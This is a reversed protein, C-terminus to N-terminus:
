RGAKLQPMLNEIAWVEVKRQGADFAIRSGDPHVRPNALRPMALGIQEPTGGSVAIKLLEVKAESRPSEPSTSTGFILHRGDPSWALPTMADFPQNQGSRFIERPEGGAASVVSLVPIENEDAVVFADTTFAIWRGDRSLAMNGVNGPHVVREQGTALELAVIASVNDSRREFYVTKGDPSWEPHRLVGRADAAAIQTVDGTKADISFVGQWSKQPKARGTVLFSSGDPSWRIGRNMIQIMRSSVPVEKMDGTEPNSIVLTYSGQRESVWALRRGDRSWDSGENSGVYRETVKTPSAAVRGTKPDITTVYVDTLVDMVGYFFSGSRTFGMPWIPGSPKGLASKVLEPPGDPKGDRVAIAWIGWSGTRDSTFLIHRGDPSWGMPVDSAPHEILPIDQGGGVSRLFIDRKKSEPGQSRSHLIHRGDPSLATKGPQEPDQTTLLVRVAANKVSILALENAGTEKALWALVHQGDPSWDVPRLWPTDKQNILVRADSGDLAIVRLEYFNGAGFWAYAVQKGDPSFVSFEAFYPTSWSGKGTLRRDRGTDFDHLALDGTSWDTFTLHRGDPSPSGLVDRANAWVERVVVGPRAVPHGLETLRTRAQEVLERQKPFNTLVRQLAAAAKDEKGQKLYCMGLRFQAQAVYPRSAEAETLITQYIEIAANLDGVSEETFIAKELLEATSPASAAPKSEAAGAGAASGTSLLLALVALVPLQYKM